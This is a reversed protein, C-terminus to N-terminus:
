TKKKKLRPISIGKNYKVDFTVPNKIAGVKNKLAQFEIRSGVVRGTGGTTKKLEKVKRVRGRVSAYFKLANGGSTMEPNGFVVGIKYRIQNIFIVLPGGPRLCTTIERCAQSMMRAQMGLARKGDLEAQSVLAAVSDIVVVSVGEEVMARAAILAEEGSDPQMYILDGMSAGVVREAYRFDLAQEIDIFGCLEGQAQAQAIVCLALTTKAAAEPGFIEIMRGRPFGMGSGPEIVGNDDVRGTLVDDIETFGTSICELDPDYQQSLGDIKYKDGIRKAITRAARGMEERKFPNLRRRPKTTSAGNPKRRKVRKKKTTSPAVSTSAMSRVGFAFFRAIGHAPVSRM